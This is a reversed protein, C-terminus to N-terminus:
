GEEAGKKEKKREWGPMRREGERVEERRGRARAREREKRAVSESAQDGRPNKLCADKKLLGPNVEAVMTSGVSIGVSVPSEEESEEVVEEEERLGAATM